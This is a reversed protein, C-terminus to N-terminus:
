RELRQLYDAKAISESEEFAALQDDVHDLSADREPSSPLQRLLEAYRRLRHTAPHQGVPYFRQRRHLPDSLAGYLRGDMTQTM